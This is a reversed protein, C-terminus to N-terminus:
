QFFFFLYAWPGHGLSCLHLKEHISAKSCTPIIKNALTMDPSCCLELAICCLGCLLLSLPINHGHFGPCAELFAPASNGLVM